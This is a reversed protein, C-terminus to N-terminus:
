VHVWRHNEHILHLSYSPGILRSRLYRSSLFYGRMNGDILANNNCFTIQM